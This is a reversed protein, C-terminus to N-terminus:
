SGLGAFNRANEPYRDLRQAVRVAREITTHWGVIVAYTPGQVCIAYPGKGMFSGYLVYVVEGEWVIQKESM